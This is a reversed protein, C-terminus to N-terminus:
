NLKRWKPYYPDDSYYLIWTKGTLKDIKIPTSHSSNVVEYREFLFNSTILGIGFGIVIGITLLIIKNKL